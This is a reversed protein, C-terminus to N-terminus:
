RDSFCASVLMINAHVRGISLSCIFLYSGPTIPIDEEQDANTIVQFKAEYGAGEVYPDSTFLLTVWSQDSTRNFLLGNNTGCLKGTGINSVYLYDYWCEGGDAAEIDM